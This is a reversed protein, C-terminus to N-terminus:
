EDITSLQSLQANLEFQDILAARVDNLLQDAMQRIIKRQAENVGIASEVTDDFMVMTSRVRKFVDVFVDMVKETRWLQGAIEEYKQRALKGDWFARQLPVPLDAPKLSKIYAEMDIIPDVLHRAAEALDYTPHGDREGSSKLNVIRRAVERNDMGFVQGLM